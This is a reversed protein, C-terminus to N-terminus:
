SLFKLYGRLNKSLIWTFFIFWGNDIEEFKARMLVENASREGVEFDLDGGLMRNEENKLFKARLTWYDEQKQVPNPQVIVYGLPGAIILSVILLIMTAKHSM